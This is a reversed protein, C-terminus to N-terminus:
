RPAFREYVKGEYYALQALNQLLEYHFTFLQTRADLLDNLSSVLDLYSVKGQHYDNEVYKFSQDELSLLERSHDHVQVGKRVQSMLSEIASRTVLLDRDLQDALIDRTLRASSVNRSRTGWDFLNFKLTLLADWAAFSKPQSSTGLYNASQYSADANLYVQPWYERQALDISEDNITKQIRALRAEYSVELDPAQDPIRPAPGEAAEPALPVFEIGAESEPGLALARRLEAEERIIASTGGHLAIDGREVRAQFRIFDKRTKMGLRFQRNIDAFQKTLLEQQRLNVSQLAHALSYRYFERVVDLILGDRAKQFDLESLQRAREAIALRSLTQGNDYISESVKATLNSTWPAWPVVIQPPEQGTIGQTASVDLQPLLQARVNKYENERLERTNQAIRLSPSRELAIRVAEAMEVKRPAAMAIPARLTLALAIVCYAAESRFMFQFRVM